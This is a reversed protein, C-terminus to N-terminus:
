KKPPSESKTDKITEKVPKKKKGLIAEVSAEVAPALTNQGLGRRVADFNGYEEKLHSMVRRVIHEVDCAEPSYEGQLFLRRRVAREADSRAITEEYGSTRQGGQNLQGERYWM